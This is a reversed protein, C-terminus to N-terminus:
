PTRPGRGRATAGAGARRGCSRGCVGRGPGHHDGGPGVPRAGGGGRGGNGRPPPACRGCRELRIRGAGGGPPFLARHLGSAGVPLFDPAVDRTAVLVRELDGPTTADVSVVRAAAWGAALARRSVAPDGRITDLGVEAVAPGGSAAVLAAVAGHAVPVLPDRAFATEELPVGDVFVRGGRVTRGAAFGAPCFLVPRADPRALLAALEAGVPGRLTSDIKKFWLGGPGRRDLLDAVVRRAAAPPLNRTETSVGDGDPPYAVGGGFVVELPRGAVGAGAAAIELAGSLDDALFWAAPTM